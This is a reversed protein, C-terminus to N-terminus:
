KVWFAYLKNNPTGVGPGFAGFGTGWYVVGDVISPGNNCSAGTAFSWLTAGTAANFAYATGDVPDMSCAYVVGNAVSVSGLAISQAPDEIQWVSAGTAADIAAWGGATAPIGSPQLEYPQHLFNALSVYVRKGDTASSGVLGGLYSGPGVTTSWVVAGTDASM